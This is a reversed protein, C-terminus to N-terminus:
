RGRREALVAQLPDPIAWPKTLQEALWDQMLSDLRARTGPDSDALNRTQYPDDELDYLEVPEFTNYEYPDYTRILLHERTRVARQVTYLATDWVLYERDLGPEGRLNGAFSRGDWHEPVDGGLLDCLTASFDVNYLMADCESGAAAVGPWKVILPIHHICEDACVHDTFIGHEGFADGHDSTFIIVADDLVGQRDLEELVLGVHHDVYAISADYGTVIQEYEARNTVNGPMLPVTSVNDKFQRQGTFIGEAQNLREFAGEDPWAPAPTDAFRDAWSADMKYIRHTDWYNIHLLYNERKANTKLWELVPENIEPATESGGKLNPSYSCTWGLMFESFSHRWPFNTFSFTDHGGFERLLRPLVQNEPRPGGYSKKAFHFKAGAGINSVVGNHIGFRGSILNARSPMCPSDACYYRNFRMGQSAVRDINPSTPRHYGYCGLHDPRLCDIDFLVIRM